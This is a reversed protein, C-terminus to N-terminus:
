NGNHFTMYISNESFTLKNLVKRFDNIKVCLDDINGNKYYIPSYPTKYLLLKNDGFTFIIEKNSEYEKNLKVITNGLRM